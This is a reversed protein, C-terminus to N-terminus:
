VQPDQALGLSNGDRDEIVAVIKGAGVDRPERTVRGDHKKAVEIASAIDTTTWYPLAVAGGTPEGPALGVQTGEIVFGVYYSEDVFPPTDFLDRYFDRSKAIDTVPIIITDFGAM